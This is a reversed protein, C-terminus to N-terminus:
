NACAACGLQNCQPMTANTCSGDVAPYFGSICTICINDPMCTQCNTQNCQILDCYYQGTTQNVMLLSGTVCSGCTNTFSCTSCNVVDCPFAYPNQALGAPLLVAVVIALTIFM